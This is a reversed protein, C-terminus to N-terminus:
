TPKIANGLVNAKPVGTINLGNASTLTVEYVRLWYDDNNIGGSGIWHAVLQEADLEVRYPMSLVGPSRIRLNLNESGRDGLEKLIDELSKSTTGLFPNTTSFSKFTFVVDVVDPLVVPAQKKLQNAYATIFAAVEDPVTVEIGTPFVHKDKNIWFTAVPSGYTTPIIITKSM